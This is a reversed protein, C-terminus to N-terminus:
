DPPGGWAPSGVTTISIHTMSREPAAGHWHREGPAAYLVDGPALAVEETETGARGEGDLIYLIQEGPHTHWHTRAGDEFHVVSLGMGGSQQAALVRRLTTEGTFTRGTENTGEGSRVLKM